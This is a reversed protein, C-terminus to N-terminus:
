PKYNNERKKESQKYYLELIRIAIYSFSRNDKDADRQIKDKLEPPFRLSRPSERIVAKKKRAKAM